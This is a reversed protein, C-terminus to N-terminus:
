PRSPRGDGTAAPTASPAPPASADAAAVEGSADREAAALLLKQLMLKQDRERAAEEQRERTAEPSYKGCGLSLVAATCVAALLRGVPKM